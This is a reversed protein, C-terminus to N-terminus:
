PTTMFEEAVYMLGDVYAVGVGVYVTGPNLMNALHGPSDVFAQHMRGVDAPGVMGVNEALYNWPVTIGADLPSHCILPRGGGDRGCTGLSMTFSVFRAKNVLVPHTALPALGNSARLSNISNILAQEAGEDQAAM